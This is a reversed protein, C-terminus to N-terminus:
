KKDINNNDNNSDNNTSDSSNSQMGEIIQVVYSQLKLAKEEDGM